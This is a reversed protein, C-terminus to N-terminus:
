RDQGFGRMHRKNASLDKPAKQGCGILGDALAVEYASLRAPTKSLYEKLATRIVASEDKGTLASRKRLRRELEEGIRITIRNSSM